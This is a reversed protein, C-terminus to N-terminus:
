PNRGQEGEAHGNGEVQYPFLGTQWDQDAKYPERKKGKDKPDKEWPVM